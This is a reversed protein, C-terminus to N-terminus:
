SVAAAELGRDEGAIVPLVNAPRRSLHRPGFAIVVAIALVVLAAGAGYLVTTPVLGLVGGIHGGSFNYSFHMLTTAVLSGGTNNFVWAFLVSLVITVPVFIFFPMMGGSEVGGTLYQPVHWLAWLLGLLLSASLASMRAQLRPLAFGRWGSEEALPGTVWGGMLIILYAGLTLGAEPGRPQNGLAIYVVALGLPIIALSLAALYWRWGIRWKAYGALLRRVESRGGIGAAVLYAAITPSAIAVLWPPAWARIPVVLTTATAAANIGFALAFFWALPHARLSARITAM